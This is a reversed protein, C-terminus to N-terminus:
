CARSRRRSGTTSPSASARCGSDGGGSRGRLARSEPFPPTVTGREVGRWRRAIGRRHTEEGDIGRKFGAGDTDDVALADKGPALVGAAAMGLPQHAHDLRRHRFGSKGEGIEIPDGDGNTGARESADTDADGGRAPKGQHGAGWADAEGRKGNVGLLRPNRSAGTRDEGDNGRAAACQVAGQIGGVPAFKLRRAGSRRLGKRGEDRAIGNDGSGAGVHDNSRQRHIGASDNGVALRRGGDAREAGKGQPRGRGIGRRLREVEARRVGLRLGGPTARVHGRRKDFAHRRALGSRKGLNV